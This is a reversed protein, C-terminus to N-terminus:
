NVISILYGIEKLRLNLEQEYNEKLTWSNKELNIDKIIINKNNKLLNEVSEIFNNNEPYVESL